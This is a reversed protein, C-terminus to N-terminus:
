RVRWHITSARSRRSNWRKWLGRATGKCLGLSLYDQRDTLSHLYTTFYDIYVSTGQRKGIVTLKTILVQTSINPVHEATIGLCILVDFGILCSLHPILWFIRYGPDSFVRSVCSEIEKSAFLHVPTPTGQSHSHVMHVAMCKFKSELHHLRLFPRCKRLCRNWVGKTNM